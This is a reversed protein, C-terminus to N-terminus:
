VQEDANALLMKLKAKKSAENPSSPAGALWREVQQLSISHRYRRQGFRSMSCRQLGFRGTGGQDSVSSRAAAFEPSYRGIAPMYNLWRM